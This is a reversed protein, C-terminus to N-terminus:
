PFVSMIMDLKNLLIVFNDNESTFNLNEIMNYFNNLSRANRNKRKEMLYIEQDSM